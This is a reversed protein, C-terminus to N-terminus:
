RVLFIRKEANLLIIRSILLATPKNFSKFNSSLNQRPKLAEVSLNRQTSLSKRFAEKVQAKIVWRIVLTSQKVNVSDHTSNFGIGSLIVGNGKLAPPSSYRRSRLSACLSEKGEDALCEKADERRPVGLSLYCNKTEENFYIM